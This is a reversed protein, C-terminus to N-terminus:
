EEKNKFDILICIIFTILTFPGALIIISGFIIDQVDLKDKLDSIMKLWLIFILLDCLMYILPIIYM